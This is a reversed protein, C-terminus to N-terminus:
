RKRPQGARRFREHLREIPWDDDPIEPPECGPLDRGQQHLAMITINRLDDIKDDQQRMAIVITDRLGAIATLIEDKDNGSLQTELKTERKPKAGSKNELSARAANMIEAVAEIDCLEELWQRRRLAVNNNPNLSIQGDEQTGNGYQRMRKLLAPDVENMGVMKLRNALAPCIKLLFKFESQRLNGGLHVFHATIEALKNFYPDSLNANFGEIIATLISQTAEDSLWVYGAPNTKSIAIHSQSM